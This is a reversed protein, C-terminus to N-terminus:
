RGKQFHTSAGGVKLIMKGRGVEAADSHRLMEKYQKQYRITLGKKSSLVSSKKVEKHTLEREGRHNHINLLIRL